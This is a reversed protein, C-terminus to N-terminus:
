LIRPIVYIYAVYVLLFTGGLLWRPDFRLEPPVLLMVLTGFLIGWFSAYMGYGRMPFLPIPARQDYQAAKLIRAAKWRHAMERLEALNSVQGMRIRRGGAQISDPNIQEIEQHSFFLDPLFYRRIVMEELFRIERIVFFPALSTLISLALALIWFAVPLRTFLSSAGCLMVFVALPLGYLLVRTQIPYKPKFTHSALDM